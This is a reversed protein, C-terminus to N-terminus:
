IDGYVIQGAMNQVLHVKEVQYLSLGIYLMDCFDLRSTVLAHLVMKLDELDTASIKRHKASYRELLKTMHKDTSEELASKGKENKLLPNAGYWLLLDAVNRGPIEVFAGVELGLGLVNQYEGDPTVVQPCDAHRIGAPLVPCNIGSQLLSPSDEKEDSGPPQLNIPDKGKLIPLNDSPKFIIQIEPSLEGGNINRVGKTINNEAAPAMDKSILFLRKGRLEEEDPESDLVSGEIITEDSDSDAM